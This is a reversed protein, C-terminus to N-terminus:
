KTLFSLIKKENITSIYDTKGCILNKKYLLCPRAKNHCNNYNEFLLKKGLLVKGTIVSITSLFSITKFIDYKTV